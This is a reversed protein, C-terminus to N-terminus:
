RQNRKAAELVALANDHYVKKLVADSLGFGALPWHYQSMRDIYFHEDETELIRFTMRYMWADLGMDTGYLIRDQYKTIFKATFRPIAATEYFRAGIDAYLNPLRDLMAGLKNLDSCCNAYHCAIFITRPHKAAARALTEIVADHRLVEPSDSVHWKAANMLGDNHADVPEYMWRDEGAHMNVPLGLDACKELIPDMRPDDLHMGWGDVPARMGMMGRGKDSLEGVGVAGAKKCRELEAIAKAAWGEVTYGTYDIGCWLEFRGPYKQYRVAADDFTKGSRNIMVVIKELGVADMTKLWEEVTAEDKAYDHSHQDIVPYRAKEVQTQPINYISQPRYDKLLLSDTGTQAAAGAAILMLLVVPFCHAIKM